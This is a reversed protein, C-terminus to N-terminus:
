CMQIRLDTEFDKKKIIPKFICLRQELRGMADM